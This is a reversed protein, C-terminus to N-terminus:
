ILGLLLLWSPEGYHSHGDPEVTEGSPTDCVSDCVWAEIQDMTPMEGSILKGVSKGSMTLTVNRIQVINGTSPYRNWTVAFTTGRPIVEGDKLTLDCQSTYM